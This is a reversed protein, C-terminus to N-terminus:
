EILAALRDRLKQAQEQMDALKDQERQVVEAPAKATFGENSLLKQSRSIGDEVHALEKGLRAREANLDVMGALPLYVEVGGVVLTLAHEPEDLLSQAIHLSESDLRALEVLIDRQSSYLDHKEGTAIHAVIRRAPEVNYEARINRIARVVDMVQQMATEAEPDLDGPTPWSAVMLSDGSHPLHQWATETVFPMFPHLLRLTRDLVYVLVRRVTAQARADTGYLRIKAIEIYWDAYEGWLFEYIQRGAEGYQYTDMLQTVNEILRSHRSIIWRDPLAMASLNLTGLGADFAAGLNNVVFRTANWIKNAFNRNAIIREESLSMDNGPTSGTLLTFRLADTGYQGMMEVPDIVNGATKSMKRGQADRVLGHLYVTHFPIQGTMELGQMIMRAVWFFLIDYGTEMVDTPYFRALDDTRDPWGLTSFPWLGSSFWTDLVDPDQELHTGGCQECAAPDERAVTMHKCDGCYWVPIRHGWWLQRSICWDRINELWNYYVKAFREPVIKIRGDRVAELGAEALPGMKVFWQTSVMPEVVEGGRQSRPVQMPYKDTKITLGSAEMDAWLKARCEYRDLGAYPGANENMTADVNLVNVIPLGHRQGIEFDNPDHGPTIKLAGTGFEMSVYTDHIVPITRNLMPVLCTKGILHRYREDDPHVAVATDGLITEPRTTAVPIYGRGPGADLDAGAIPYKFYYLVGEEENYEVELDSVATQLGPSWNILYEGRYILGKEYLRVFAERVARSLGEDFTFRERDWDCSAGMRRLQTQIRGGYRAKWEWTRRLFEERGVEQRSTGERLLMREVQLQTAIGAHDSGPVWLSARGLTRYYRIMLDEIFTTLAHGMHLEGTVNPPPMSIVFPEAEPGVIEPKFYGQSEWWDYLATEVAQPDYAKAMEATNIPCKAM